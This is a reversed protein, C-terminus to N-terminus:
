FPWFICFSTYVLLAFLCSGRELKMETVTIASFQINKRPLKNSVDMEGQRELSTADSPMITPSPPFTM